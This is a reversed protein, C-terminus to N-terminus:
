PFCPVTCPTWFTTSPSAWGVRVCAGALVLAILAPQSARKMQRLMWCFNKKVIAMQKGM